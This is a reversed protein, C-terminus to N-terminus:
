GSLEARATSVYFGDFKQALLLLGPLLLSWAIALAIMATVFDNIVVAGLKAGIYYSLPGFVAGLLAALALRSHLWRFALNLTTAFLMWMAIIWYPAASSSFVGSSYTLWGAAVMVSDWAAGIVGTLLVLLLEDGPYDANRLHLIVAMLVVAPGLLPLGNAAGYMTSAWGIKFAVVNILMNM